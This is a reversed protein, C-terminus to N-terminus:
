KAKVNMEIRELIKQKKLKALTVDNELHETITERTFYIGRHDVFWKPGKGNKRREYVMASTIGYFFAVESPRFKDQENHPQSNDSM